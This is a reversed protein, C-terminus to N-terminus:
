QTSAHTHPPHMQLLHVRTYRHTFCTSVSQIFVIFGIFPQIGGAALSCKKLRATHLEMLVRLPECLHPQSLYQYRHRNEMCGGGLGALNYKNFSCTGKLIQYLHTSGQLGVGDKESWSGLTKFMLASHFRGGPVLDTACDYPRHPPGLNQQVGEQSRPIM